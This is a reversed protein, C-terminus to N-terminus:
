SLSLCHGKRPDSSSSTPIAYLALYLVHSPCFFQNSIVDNRNRTGPELCLQRTNQRLSRLVRLNRECRAERFHNSCVRLGLDTSDERGSNRLWMRRDPVNKPGRHFRVHDDQSGATTTFYYRARCRVCHRLLM